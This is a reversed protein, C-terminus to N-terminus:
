QRHNTCKERHINKSVLGESYIKNEDIIESLIYNIMRSRACMWLLILLAICELVPWLARQYIRYSTRENSKRLSTQWCTWITYLERGAGKHRKYITCILISVNESAMVWTAKISVLPNFRGIQRGNEGWTELLLEATLNSLKAYCKTKWM